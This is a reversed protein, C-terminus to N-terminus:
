SCHSESIIRIDAGSSTICSMLAVTSLPASVMDDVFFRPLHAWSTDTVTFAGSTVVNLAELPDASFVDIYELGSDFTDMLVDLPATIFAELIFALVKLMDADLPATNLMSPRVADPMLAVADLPAAPLRCPVQLLTLRDAELPLTILAEARFDVLPLADAELPPETDHSMTFGSLM